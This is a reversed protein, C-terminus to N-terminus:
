FMMTTGANEPAGPETVSKSTYSSWIFWRPRASIKQQTKRVYDSRDASWFRRKLALNLHFNSKNSTIKVVLSAGTCCIAQGLGPSSTHVSHLACHAPQVGCSSPKVVVVDSFHTQHTELDFKFTESHTVHWQVSWEICM